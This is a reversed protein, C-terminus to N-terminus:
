NSQRRLRYSFQIVPISSFLLEHDTSLTNVDFVAVTFREAIPIRRAWRATDNPDAVVLYAGEEGFSGLPSVLILQGDSGHEPRLFVTLNGNPLPFVVRLCPRDSGPLLTTGYWGSYVHQGTAILTRIWAVGVQNGDEGILSLVKSEMGLATDRKRLPFNLQQLRNTFLASLLWGFPLAAPSWRHSVEMRWGVTGEYFDVIPRAVSSPDFNLGGLVNFDELLGVGQVVAGGIRTSEEKIWADAIQSPQGIPGFLWPAEKFSVRCGSARVWHQTVRDLRSDGGMRISLTSMLVVICGCASYREVVLEMGSIHREM